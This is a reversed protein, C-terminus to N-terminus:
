TSVSDSGGALLTCEAAAQRLLQENKIFNEKMRVSPGAISLAAVVAGGGSFIPAAIGSVDAFREGNTTAIGEKLIKKIEAMLSASKTITNDTYQNRQTNKLYKKFQDNDFYALLVKGLATCYLERREGITVAYRIPNQSEVKDQYQVLEADPELMGFVATEGTVEALKTMIPKVLASLERGSITRMALSLFKPGILYRGADDRILCGEEILGALLGVLSTKPAHISVALESLTAGSSSKVLFDLIAFIRGVSQPGSRSASTTTSKM